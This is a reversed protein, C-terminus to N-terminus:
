PTRGGNLEKSQVREHAQPCITIPTSALRAASGPLSPGGSMQAEASQVVAQCDALVRAVRKDLEELRVLLDDHRAELDLLLDLHPAQNGM